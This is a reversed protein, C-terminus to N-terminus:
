KTPRWLAIVGKRMMFIVGLLVLVIEGLAFSLIFAEQYLRSSSFVASGNLYSGLILMAVSFLLISIWINKVRNNMFPGKTM